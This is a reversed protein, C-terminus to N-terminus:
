DESNNADSLGHEEEEVKISDTDAYVASGYKSGLHRKAIRYCSENFSKDNGGKLEDIFRLAGTLNNIWGSRPSTGYDGYMCVLLQWLVWSVPCDSSSFKTFAPVYNEGYVKLDREFEELFEDNTNYHIVLRLAYILSNYRREVHDRHKNSM